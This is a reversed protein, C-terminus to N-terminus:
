VLDLVGGWLCRDEQTSMRMSNWLLGNGELGGEYRGLLIIWVFPFNM